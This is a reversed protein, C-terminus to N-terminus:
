GKKETGMYFFLDLKYKTQFDIRYYHLEIGMGM